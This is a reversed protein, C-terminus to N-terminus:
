REEAYVLVLTGTIRANRGTVWVHFTHLGERLCPEPSGPFCTVWNVEFTEGVNVVDAAQFQNLVINFGRGKLGTATDTRAAYIEQGTLAGPLVTSYEAEPYRKRNTSDLAIAVTYRNDLIRELYRQERGLRATDLSFHAWEQELAALQPGWTPIAELAAFDASDLAVVSPDPGYGTIPTDCTVTGRPTTFTCDVDTPDVNMVVVSDLFHRVRVEIPVVITDKQGQTLSDKIPSIAALRPVILSDSIYKLSDDIIQERRLTQCDPEIYVVLRLRAPTDLGPRNIPALPRDITFDAHAYGATDVAVNQWLVVTQTFGPESPAAPKTRPDACSGLLMGMLAAVLLAAVAGRLARKAGARPRLIGPLTYHGRDSM